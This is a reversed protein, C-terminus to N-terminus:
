TTRMATVSSLSETTRSRPTCAVCGSEWDALASTHGTRPLLAAASNWSSASLSMSRDAPHHPAWIAHSHLALVTTM